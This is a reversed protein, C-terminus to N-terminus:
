IGHYRYTVSKTKGPAIDGISTSVQGVLDTDNFLSQGDGCEHAFQSSDGDPTAALLLAILTGPVFRIM